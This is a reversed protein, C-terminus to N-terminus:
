DLSQTQFEAILEDVLNADILPCDGTIRVIVDSNREKAARYYRDLVDDESGEFVPFGLARVHTVLPQNRPHESTALVIQDLRQAQSLRYLLLEILPRGLIPLMVKKPLRTSGM